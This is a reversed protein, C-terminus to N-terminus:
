VQSASASNATHDTKAMNKDGYGLTASTGEQPKSSQLKAVPKGTSGSASASVSAMKGRMIDTLNASFDVMDALCFADFIQEFGNVLNVHPGAAAQISDIIFMLVLCCEFGYIGAQTKIIQQSRPDQHRPIFLKTYFCFMFTGEVILKYLGNIVAKINNLETIPLAYITTATATDYVTLFYRVMAIIYWTGITAMCIYSKRKASIYFDDGALTIMRKMLLLMVGTSAHTGIISYFYTNNAITTPNLSTAKTVNSILIDIIYAVYITQVVLVYKLFKRDAMLQVTSFMSRVIVGLAISYNVMQVVNNYNPITDSM